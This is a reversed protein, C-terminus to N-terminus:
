VMTADHALTRLLPLVERAAQDPRMRLTAGAAQAHGGGGWRLALTAVDIPPVSRMSIKTTGDHREKFLVLAAVGAVRQIVRVVEDAAEDEAGTTSMMEQTITTWAIPGERRMASLGLGILLASSPPLAYYVERIIRQQDAGQDLLDAAIRLTQASTSSTQFSQTDTTLGLLLCTALAPTIPLHMAHFLQALLECTSAAAPTILNLSGAGENTVHHDVILTPLTALKEAHEDYIRGVRGFTATDVMMILDASPLDAGHEYVQIQDAGPLWRTYSPPVSSALPLAHKGLAEMAHWAGLLSGIADGDPNIHTLLLIRNAQAIRAAFAPAAQIADTYIM